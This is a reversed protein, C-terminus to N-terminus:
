FEEPDSHAEGGSPAAVTQNATPTTGPAVSQPPDSDKFEAPTSPKPQTQDGSETPGADQVEAPKFQPPIQERCWVRYTRYLFFGFLAFYAILGLFKSAQVSPAIIGLIEKLLLLFYSLVIIVIGTQCVAIVIV